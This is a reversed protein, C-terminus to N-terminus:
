VRNVDAVQVALEEELLLMDALRFCLYICVAGNVEM